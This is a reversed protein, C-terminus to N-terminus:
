DLVKVASYCITGVPPEKTLDGQQMLNSYFRSLHEDDCYIIVKLPRKGRGITGVRLILGGGVMFIRIFREADNKTKFCFIGLTASSAKVIKGRKYIKRYRCDPTLLCSGRDSMRVVKWRIM